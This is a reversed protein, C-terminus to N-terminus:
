LAFFACSPYANETGYTTGIGTFVDGTDDYMAVFHEAEGTRDIGLGGFELRTRPVLRAFLVEDVDQHRIPDGVEDGGVTAAGTAVYLANADDRLAYLFVTGREIVTSAGDGFTCKGILTLDDPVPDGSECATISVLLAIIALRM